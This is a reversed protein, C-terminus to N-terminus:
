AIGYDSGLMLCNSLCMIDTVFAIHLTGFFLHWFFICVLGLWVVIVYVIQCSCRKM